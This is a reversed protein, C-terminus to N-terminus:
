FPIGSFRGPDRAGEGHSLEQFAARILSGWKGQGGSGSSSLRQEGLGNLIMYMYYHPFSKLFGSLFEWQILPPLDDELSMLNYFPEPTYGTVQYRQGDELNLPDGGKLKLAKVLQRVQRVARDEREQRPKTITDPRSCPSCKTWNSPWYTM